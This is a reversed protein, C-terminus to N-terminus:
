KENEYTRIIEGACDHALGWLNDRQKELDKLVYSRRIKSVTGDEQSEIIISIFMKGKQFICNFLWNEPLNIWLMNCFSQAFEPIVKPVQIVKM